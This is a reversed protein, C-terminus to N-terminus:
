PLEELIRNVVTKINMGAPCSRICRGCGTCATYGFNQKVYLYKHMVRQRYREKKTPRPNHGSAHMTFKPYMCSDWCRYRSIGGKEAVDKFEFCHCTPCIYTCTGCGMCIESLREWDVKNFLTNEDANIELLGKGATTDTISGSSEDLRQRSEFGIMYEKIITEGAATIADAYYCDGSDTLFLDCEKSWGKNIGRDSCFCGPKENICGMGIIVTNKLHEIFMTDTFRGTTFVTTLVKLAELDCPRVGFIVTKGAHNEEILDGNEDSQMFKEVQPFLFEKPSKYTIEDTLRINAHCDIERFELVNGNMVPAAVRYERKLRDLLENIRNKPVVVRNM